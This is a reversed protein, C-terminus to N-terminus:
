DEVKVRVQGTLLQQMLGKKQQQLQEVYPVFTAITQEVSDLADAVKSQEEKTPPMRVTRKMYADLVFFLKEIHVGHSAVYSLHYLYPTKALWDFFRIDYDKKARLTHYANSVLYGEFSEPVLATAGHVVQRKSILFDDEKVEYMTENLQEGTRIERHFVGESRRRVSLLSYETEDDVSVKRRVEKLIERISITTWESDFEPFRVEGTLLKQMLGKKRQQLADILAGTLTIAEDWTSLIDAIARQEDLPPLPIDMSYFDGHNLDPITSTGARILIEHQTRDLNLYYYLFGHEIRNRNYDIIFFNNHFVGHVGTVVIGTNGTRTMLIDDEYCIVTKKPNEIYEPNNDPNNLHQITIYPLRNDSPKKFRESIKIQLGQRLSCIDHMKLLQWDQPYEEINGM